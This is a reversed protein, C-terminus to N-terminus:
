DTKDTVTISSHDRGTRIEVRSGKMMNGRGQGTSSPSHSLPKPPCRANIWALGFCEVETKKSTELSFVQAFSDCSLYSLCIKNL